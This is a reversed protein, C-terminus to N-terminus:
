CWGRGSEAAGYMDYLSVVRDLGAMKVPGLIQATAAHVLAEERAQENEDAEFLHQFSCFRVVHVLEHAMVYTLLPLLLEGSKERRVLGLLNHDQLCIRFFDKARLDNEGPPRRLKLVQALAVPSIERPALQKLTRVEYPYRRWCAGSLRFFESVREEAVEIAQGLIAMDKLAFGSKMPM